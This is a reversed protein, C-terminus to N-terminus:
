SICSQLSDCSEPFPRCSVAWAECIAAALDFGNHLHHGNVCTQKFSGSCGPIKPPLRPAMKLFGFALPRLFAWQQTMADHCGCLNFQGPRRCCVQGLGPCLERHLVSLEQLSFQEMGARGCALCSKTPDPGARLFATFLRMWGSTGLRRATASMVSMVSPSCCSSCIASQFAFNVQRNRM